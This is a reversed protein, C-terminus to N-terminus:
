PDIRHKFGPADCDRARELTALILGRTEHPAIVHDILGMGAAAYASAQEELAAGLGASLAGRAEQIRAAGAESLMIFPKGERIALERARGLKVEAVRGRASWCPRTM